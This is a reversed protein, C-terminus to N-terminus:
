ARFYVCLSFPQEHGLAEQELEANKPNFSNSNLYSQEMSPPHRGNAGTRELWGCRSHQLKHVCRAPLLRDGSRLLPSM